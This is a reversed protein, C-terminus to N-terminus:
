ERSRKARKYTWRQDMHTRDNDSEIWIISDSFILEELLEPSTDDLLDVSQHDISGTWDWDSGVEGDIVVCDKGVHKELMAKFGRLERMDNLKQGRRINYNIRICLWTLVYSAKEQWTKLCCGYYGWGYEGTSIHVPHQPTGGSVKYERKGNPKFVVQHYSSSNTAFGVKEGVPKLIRM